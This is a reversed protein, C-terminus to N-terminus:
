PQGLEHNNGIHTGERTGRGRGRGAALAAPLGAIAIGEGAAETDTKATAAIVGVTAVLAGEFVFVVLVYYGFLCVLVFCLM